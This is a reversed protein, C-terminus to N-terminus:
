RSAESQLLDPSTLPHSDIVGGPLLGPFRSQSWRLLQLAPAGMLLKAAPQSWVLQDVADNPRYPSDAIGDGNVDFAVHDSWYNGRGADSWELWRTGVYKVQTRNGVFANGSMANGQSGATFHVGIGCGQFRNSTFSNNNSNYIFLCKEGGDRVENGSLDARNAFNMFFGHNTDGTSLNGRVTLHTSYMFAFGMDNDRSVNDTVEIRNAYMSHFAFRLETFTNRRYIARDSTTIFVGDRGRAIMNDEVLLGPSNWVYIGPGREAVRLDNRGQITNGRLIVDRAGHVDIGILNGILTVGEVRARDAGKLLRIGSDLDALSAGAGSVSLGTLTVDPATITVVSGDGPGEITAGPGTLTLPRDIHVPGAYTGPPLVLEDGPRATALATALADQGRGVEIREAALPTALAFSLLILTLIRM